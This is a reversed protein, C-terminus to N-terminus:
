GLAHPLVRRGDGLFGGFSVVAYSIKGSVKDIM